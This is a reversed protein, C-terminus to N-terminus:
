KTVTAVFVAHWTIPGVVGDVKLHKDAQFCAVVQETHGGFKGDVTIHWGRVKLQTQLARVDPGEDGKSLDHHLPPVKSAHVVAPHEHSPRPPAAPHSGAPAQHLITLADRIIQHRAKKIPDGPCAYHGGWLAGGMGHWGVGRMNVDNTTQLPVGETRHLWALLDADNAIQIPTLHDGAVGEHEVSIWKSNGAMEAWAKDDTDVFQDLGKTHKPNGFHASAQAAPNHFWADTGAETGQEIHLVVGMFPRVMGGATKNPVPGRWRADNKRAM